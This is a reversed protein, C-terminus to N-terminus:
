LGNGVYEQNLISDIHSKDIESACRKILKKLNPKLHVSAQSIPIDKLTCFIALAYCFETETLYGSRNTSWGQADFDTFQQFNFASNAMFIGFGLFVATLDTAFEWNKWGGPPEETSTATLYHALEHAFTAVLQTPQKLLSPNYTIQVTEETVSFTGLPSSETRQILLASGVRPDPDEDQEILVCDWNEIGAYKKVQTFTEMAAEKENSVESPFFESTPLVLVAGKNFDDGGFHKMLWKYTEIQFM